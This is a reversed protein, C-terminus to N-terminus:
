QVPNDCTVQVGDIRPGDKDPEFAGPLAGENIGNGVAHSERILWM